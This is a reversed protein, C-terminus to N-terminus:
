DSYIENLKKTFTHIAEKLTFSAKSFHCRDKDFLENKYLSRKWQCFFDVVFNNPLHYSVYQWGSCNFSLFSVLSNSIKLKSNGIKVYNQIRLYNGLNALRHGVSPFTRDKRIQVSFIEGQTQLNTWLSHKL